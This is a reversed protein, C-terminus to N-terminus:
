SCQDATNSIIFIESKPFFIRKPKKSTSLHLLHLLLISPHLQQTKKKPKVHEMRKKKGKKIKELEDIFM